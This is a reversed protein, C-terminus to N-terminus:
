NLTKEYYELAHTYDGKSYYIATINNCNVAIEPHNSRPLHVNQTDPVKQIYWLGNLCDEIERYVAEINNNIKILSHYNCVFTELRVDLTRQHILLIDSDKRM